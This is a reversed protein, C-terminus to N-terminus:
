SPLLSAGVPRWTLMRPVAFSVLATAMLLFYRVYDFGLPNDPSDTCGDSTWDVTTPDQADRYSVFDDLSISFLYEDTITVVDDRASISLALTAAPLLSIARTVSNSLKM